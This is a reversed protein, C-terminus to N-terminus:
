ATTLYFLLSDQTWSFISQLLHWYSLQSKISFGTYAPVTGGSYCPALGCLYTVPSIQSPTPSRQDSTLLVAQKVIVTQGALSPSPSKSHIEYTWIRAFGPNKLPVKIFHMYFDHCENGTPSTEAFPKERHNWSQLSLMAWVNWEYQQGTRCPKRCETSPLKIELAIGTGHM